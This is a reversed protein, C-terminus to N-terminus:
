YKDWFLKTEVKDGGVASAASTYNATNLTQESIPYTFRNPFGSQATPPVTLAPADLRRYEVWGDYPRNYLAIWKQLGIKQKYTGGATSYAVSPQALYADAQASTGGWYLVSSRIANNYHDEASGAIAFGREVAEARYFELEMYDLIIEPYDPALMKDNTQAFNNFTNSVGVVGGVYQGSTNPKFYLPIRPDNLSKMKDILTNAIVFDARGSQVLDVWLPNTNPTTKQYKFIANDNSSTFAKSDSSEVIAKAKAADADVITMALKIRLTHAFKIWLPTSGGYILDATSAFSGAGTKMAAIDADLRKFLDDYIAKADDYAPTLKNYDLAQSYPINGFSNVLISWTYVQIIDAIALQNKRVDDSTITADEQILRKSEQLDNLIDRYGTRWWTAPINRTSFNFNPEDNYTTAAWHQVVFRFINVNVSGSALMDSLNREANSFLTAAPVTSLRRKEENLSSIDRTCSLAVGALMLVTIYRYYKKM